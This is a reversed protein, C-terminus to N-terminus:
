LQESDTVDISPLLLLLILPLQEPLHPFVRLVEPYRSFVLTESVPDTETKLHPLLYQSKPDM